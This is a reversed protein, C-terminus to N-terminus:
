LVVSCTESNLIKGQAVLIIYNSVKASFKNEAWIAKDMAKKGYFAPSVV